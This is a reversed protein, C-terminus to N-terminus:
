KVLVLRRRAVTAGDVEISGHIFDYHIDGMILGKDLAAQVTEPVPETLYHQFRDYSASGVRKPNSEAIIVIAADKKVGNVKKKTAPKEPKANTGETAEAAQAEESM